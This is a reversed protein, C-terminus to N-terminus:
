QKPDWRTVATWTRETQDANAKEIEIAREVEDRNAYLQRIAVKQRKGNFSIWAEKGDGTVSTVTVSQVGEHKGYTVFYFADKNTFNKRQKLDHAKLAAELKEWSNYRDKLAETSFEPSGNWFSVKVEHEGYKATFTM